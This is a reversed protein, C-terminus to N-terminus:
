SQGECNAIFERFASKYKNPIFKLIAKVVKDIRHRETISVSMGNAFRTAMTEGNVGYIKKCVKIFFTQLMAVTNDQEEEEEKIDELYVYEYYGGPKPIRYLYRHPRIKGTFVRTTRTPNYM